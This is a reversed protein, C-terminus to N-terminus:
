GGDGSWLRYLVVLLGIALAASVVMILSISNLGDEKKALASKHRGTDMWGRWGCTHCRFTRKSGISKRAREMLGRAHSRHVREAGCSPCLKPGM